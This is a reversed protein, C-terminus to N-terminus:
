SHSVQKDLEQCVPFDTRQPQQLAGKISESLWCVCESVCRAHQCGRSMEFRYIIGPIERRIERRVRDSHDEEEERGRERYLTKEHPKQFIMAPQLRLSRPHVGPQPSSSCLLLPPQILPPFLSDSPLSPWKPASPPRSFQFADRSTFSKNIQLGLTFAIESRPLSFTLFSSPM